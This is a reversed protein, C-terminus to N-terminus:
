RKERRKTKGEHPQEAAPPKKALALARECESHPGIRRQEYMRRARQMAVKDKTDLAPYPDGVASPTSGGPGPRLVFLPPVGAKVLREWDPRRLFM